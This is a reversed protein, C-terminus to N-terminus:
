SEKTVHIITTGQIFMYLQQVRFLCIYNNYGLYVHIITTGQIFMYLQQVRFLCTYNIYGSDVNNNYGSHIKRSIYVILM